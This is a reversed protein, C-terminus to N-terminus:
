DGRVVGITAKNNYWRAAGEHFPLVTNRSFNAPVTEAAAPHIAMMEDPNDFVADLIAAVLGSPLDARGVAFNYMGVTRYNRRLSPYTGAAIISPAIEPLALRIAVTQSPTLALSRVAGKAELETVEPLPVGGVAVLADLKHASLQAALEQWSGTAFSANAGLAKFLLPTYVGGTGGHPGIGVQKGALEAVSQIASDIPVIIQFPTDYMPFLARANRFQRGATWDGAGSWGQQAIGLTVFALDIEGAEILKLNEVPGESERATVPLGLKRTLLRALGEGYQHYTGGPSATGITLRQPWHEPAARATNPLTLVALLFAAIRLLAPM